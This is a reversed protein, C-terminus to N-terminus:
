DIFLSRVDENKTIKATAIDMHKYVQMSDCSIIQANIKRALMVATASKGSATPGM